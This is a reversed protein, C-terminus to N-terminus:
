SKEQGHVHPHAKFSKFGRFDIKNTDPPQEEVLKPSPLRFARNKAPAWLTELEGTNQTQPTVRLGEFFSAWIAPIKKLPITPTHGTM